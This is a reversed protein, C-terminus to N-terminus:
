PLKKKKYDALKPIGSRNARIADAAFCEEVKFKELLKLSTFFNDFYLLKEKHWKDKTLSLVVRENLGWDKFGDEMEEDKGQYVKFKKVFGKQDVM